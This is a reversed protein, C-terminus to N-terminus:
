PWTREWERARTVVAPIARLRLGALPGHLASGTAASWYTGTELDRLVLTDRWLAGSNEFHLVRDGVRSDFVATIATLACRAVVFPLGPVSDNVVEFRDPLGIPYGRPVAGVTLGLVRSDEDPPDSHIGPAVLSPKTVVPFAAAPKMQVIPDGGVVAVRPKSRYQHGFCGAAAFALTATLCSGLTALGRVAGAECPSPFRSPEPAPGPSGATGRPATSRGRPRVAPPG